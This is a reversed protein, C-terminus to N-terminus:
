TVKGSLYVTDSPLTLTQSPGANVVPPKREVVPTTKQCSFLLLSAIALSPFTLNPAKMFYIVINPKVRNAPGVFMFTKRHFHLLHADVRNSKRQKISFWISIFSIELDNGNRTIMTIKKNGTSAQRCGAPPSLVRSRAAPSLADEGSLDMMLYACPKVM